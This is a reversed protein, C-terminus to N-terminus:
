KFRGRHSNLLKREANIVVRFTKSAAPMNNLAVKLDRVYANFKHLTRQVKRVIGPKVFPYNKCSLQM